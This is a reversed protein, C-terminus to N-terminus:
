HSKDWVINLAKKFIIFTYVCMYLHYYKHIKIHILENYKYVFVKDWFSHKYIIIFYNLHMGECTNWTYPFMNNVQCYCWLLHLSKKCITYLRQLGYSVLMSIFLVQHMHNKRRKIKCVRIHWQSLLWNAAPKWEDRESRKSVFAVTDSYISAHAVDAAM